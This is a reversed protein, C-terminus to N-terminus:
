EKGNRPRDATLFATMDDPEIALQPRSERHYKELWLIAREGVPVYRDKKGKGQRVLILGRDLALDYLKLRVLELRRLGTSYLVELLARDRLGYVAKGGLVRAPVHPVAARPKEKERFPVSTGARM